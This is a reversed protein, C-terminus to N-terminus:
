PSGSSRGSKKWVAPAAFREHGWTQSSDYVKVPWAADVQAGGWGYEVRWGSPTHLYFSTMRDNTHRGLSLAVPYGEMRVVDYARGVDDLSRAEIMLHDFQGARCGFCETILALSHHRPNCRLFAAQATGVGADSWEVYDTIEFGLFTQYFRVSAEQDHCAMVIHGLGLAGTVYGDINKLPAFASDSPPQACFAEVVFGDPDAFVILEAVSREAAEQATGTRVEVGGTRLREALEALASASEVEWGIFRVSDSQAAYLSLRHHREDLRYQRSGAPSDARLQLSYVNQLLDEWAELNSVNWGLYGLSVVGAGNSSNM